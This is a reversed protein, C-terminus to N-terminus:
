SPPDRDRETRAIDFMLRSDTLIAILVVTVVAQAGSAQFTSFQLDLYVEVLALRISNAFTQCWGYELNSPVPIEIHDVLIRGFVQM